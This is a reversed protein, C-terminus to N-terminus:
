PAPEPSIRVCCGDQVHCLRAHMDPTEAGDLIGNVLWLAMHCVLQTHQQALAHFPCNRFVITEGSADPEFGHAALITLLRERHDAATVTRAREVGLVSARRELATGPDVGDRQADEVAAALLQAALEYRREPLSIQITRESRRYLKAPRGAGPGSRGSRRAYSTELLGEDVLRDLHFAVTARPLDLAAAVEDRTAPEALHAVHEYLRRRTPEDLMAVAAVDSIAFEDM